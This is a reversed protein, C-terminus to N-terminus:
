VTGTAEMHKLFVAPNDRSLVRTEEKCDGPAKQPECEGFVRSGWSGLYHSVPVYVYLIYYMFVYM